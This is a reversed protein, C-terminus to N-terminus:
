ELKKAVFAVLVLYLAVVIAMGLVMVVIAPTTYNYAYEVVRKAAFVVLITVATTLLMRKITGFSAEALKKAKTAHPVYDFLLGHIGFAALVLFLALLYYEVATLAVPAMQDFDTLDSGLTVCKDVFYWTGFVTLAAAGLLLSFFAFKMGWGAILLVIDYLDRPWIVRRDPKDSHPENAM